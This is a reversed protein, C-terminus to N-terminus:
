VRALPYTSEREFHLLYACFAQAPTLWDLCKRPHTTTPSYFAPRAPKELRRRPRDQASSHTAHPRHRKRRRREAVAFLPRLLLNALALTRHLDLHRAFETGNDFTITRRLPQPLPGLLQAILDAIPGAAKATRCPPSCCDRPVSQVALVAEGYNSFLMLDAEWHGPTARDAAQAPREGIPIRGTMLLAPSGGRRGRWGRKSKGRPLYHRWTTIRTAPSRPTSSATSARSASSPRGHRRALAACTQEPSWGGALATWCRTVCAARGAGAQRRALAAGQEPRGGLVAHLGVAQRQQAEAGSCDDIALSGSSCRDAPDLARRCQLRAVPCREELSLQDYRQGM